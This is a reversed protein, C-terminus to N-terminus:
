CPNVACTLVKRLSSFLNSRAKRWSLLIPRKVTTRAGRDQAEKERALTRNPPVLVSHMEASTSIWEWTAKLAWRWIQIWSATKCSTRSNKSLITCKDRAKARQFRDCWQTPSRSSAPTLTRNILARLDKRWFRQQCNNANFFTWNESAGNQM